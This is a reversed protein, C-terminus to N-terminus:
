SRAGLVLNIAASLDDKVLVHDPPVPMEAAVERTRDLGSWLITLPRPPELMTVESLFSTGRGTNLGGLREPLEYDCLVVDFTRAAFSDRAAWLTEALVVEAGRLELAAIVSRALNRNDEVLLVLVNM